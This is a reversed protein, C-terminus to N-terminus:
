QWQRLELVPHPEDGAAWSFVETDFVTEQTWALKGGSPLATRFASVPRFILTKLVKGLRDRWVLAVELQAFPKLGTNEFELSLSQVKAAFRDTWRSDQVWVKLGFGASLGEVGALPIERKEAPKTPQALIRSTTLQFSAVRDFWPWADFQQFVAVGQGPSLPGESSARFTVDRKALTQGQGDLLSVTGEWLDIRHDPFTVWASLEAVTAEPFILLRSQAVEINTRVGQTDFSSELARPGQVRNVPVGFHMKPWFAFASAVGLPLAVLAVIVGIWWRREKKGKKRRELPSLFAEAEPGSLGAYRLSAAVERGWAPDRPQLRLASTAEDIADATEGAKAAVVARDLHGRALKALHELDDQTLESTLDEWEADTPPRDAFDDRLRRSAERLRAAKSPKEQSKPIENEV